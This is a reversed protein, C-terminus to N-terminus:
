GAGPLHVAVPAGGRASEYVAHIVSSAKVGAEGPIPVPSGALVAAAFEDFVLQRADATAEPTIEQWQGTERTFLALPGTGWPTPLLIQGQRGYIRNIWPHSPGQGGPLAALAELSGM